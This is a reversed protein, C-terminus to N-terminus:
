GSFPLELLFRSGREPGDEIWLRGGMARAAVGCFIFGVGTGPLARAQRTQIWYAREFIQPKDADPIRRGEDAVEVRLGGASPSAQLVATGGRPTVKIANALLNVLLRFLLTEDLKGGLGEKPLESRVSVGRLKHLPAMLKFLKEVLPGLEVASPKVEIREANIDVLDSVMFVALESAFEANELLRAYDARSVLESSVVLDLTAKITTLPARLDHAILDTMDQRLRERLAMEEVRTTLTRREHGLALHAEIRALLEQWAFPKPVYDQGGVSFGKLRSDVDGRGTLFIVPVKSLGAERRIQSCVDFGSGDPLEVDLLILDPQFRRVAELAGHVREVHELLLGARKLVMAVVAVIARDDELMFVRREGSAGSM